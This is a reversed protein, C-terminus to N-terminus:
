DSEDYAASQDDKNGALHEEDDDCCPSFDANSLMSEILVAIM